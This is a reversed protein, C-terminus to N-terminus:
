RVTIHEGESIMHYDYPFSRWPILGALREWNSVTQRSVRIEKAVRVETLGKKARANRLKDSIEMGDTGKM